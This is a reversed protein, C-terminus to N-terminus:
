HSRLGATSLPLGSEALDAAVVEIFDQAWVLLDKPILPGDIWGATQMQALKLLEFCIEWQDQLRTLNPRYTSPMWRVSFFAIQAEALTRKLMEGLRLMQTSHAVVVLQCDVVGSFGFGALLQTIREAKELSTTAELDIDVKLQKMAYPSLVAASSVLFHAEPVGWDKLLGSDKGFNGSVVLHRADGQHCAHAVMEALDGSYRGFVAVAGRPVLNAHYASPYATLLVLARRLMAETSM